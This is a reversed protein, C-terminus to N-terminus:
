TGPSPATAKFINRYILVIGFTILSILVTDSEWVIPVLTGSIQSEDALIGSLEHM